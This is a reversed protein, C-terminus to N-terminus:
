RMAGSSSREPQSWLGATFTTRHLVASPALGFTARFVRSLHASDSFGARAAAETLNAGDHIADVARKIRLWVVFRRFPLGVELSFLHTLRSPSVHAAAAAEALRPAGDIATDLYGLARQVAQSPDRPPEHGSLTSLVIGCWAIAQDEQPQPIGRLRTTLDTGALAHAARDLSSGRRGHADVLALAIRGGRADFRHPVGGPILAARAADFEWVFQVAHHAHEDAAGGEGLYLLVGPALFLRGTWPQEQGM